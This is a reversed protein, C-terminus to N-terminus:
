AAGSKDTAIHRSFAELGNYVKTTNIKLRDATIHAIFPTSKDDGFEGWAALFATNIEQPTPQTM